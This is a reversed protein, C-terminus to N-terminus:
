NQYVWLNLTATTLMKLNDHTGVNDYKVIIPQTTILYDVISTTLQRNVYLGTYQYQASGAEISIPDVLNSGDKRLIHITQSTTKTSWDSDTYKIVPLSFSLKANSIVLKRLLSEHSVTYSFTYEITDGGNVGITTNLSQSAGNKIVTASPFFEPFNTSLSMLLAIEPLTFKNTTGVKDRIDEAMKVIPNETM